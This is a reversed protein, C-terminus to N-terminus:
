MEFRVFTACQLSRLRPLLSRKSWTQGSPLALSEPQPFLFQLPGLQPAPQLCGSGRFPGVEKVV